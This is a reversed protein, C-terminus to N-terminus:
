TDGGQGLRRGLGAVVQLGEEAEGGIVDRLLLVLLRRQVDEAGGAHPQQRLPRKQEEKEETAENKELCRYCILNEEDRKNRTKISPNGAKTDLSVIMGALFLDM